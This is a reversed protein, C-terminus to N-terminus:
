IDECSKEFVTVAVQLDQIGVGTLDAITIQNESNEELLATWLLKEWKLYGRKRSLEKDLLM